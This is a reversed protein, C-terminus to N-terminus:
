LLTGLFGLGQRAMRPSLLCDGDRYLASSLSEGSVLGDMPVNIKSKRAELVKFLLARNTFLIGLRLCKTLAEPLALVPVVQQGPLFFGEMQM